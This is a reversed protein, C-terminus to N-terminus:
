DFLAEIGGPAIGERVRRLECYLSVLVAAAVVRGLGSVVPAIFLSTTPGTLGAVVGDRFGGTAAVAASLVAYFAICYAVFLGFIAWRSGKTLDASRAFSRFVGTHEVMRSPVVVAWAAGMILAPVILPVSWLLLGGTACWYILYLPWIQRLGEVLSGRISTRRGSLHTITTATIVAQILLQLPLVILPWALVTAVAQSADLMVRIPKLKGASRAGLKLEGAPRAGVQNAPPLDVKVSIPVRVTEIAREAMVFCASPGASLLLALAVALLPNARLAGFGGAVVRRLSLRPASIEVM